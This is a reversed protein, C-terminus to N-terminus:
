FLRFPCQSRPFYWVKENEERCKEELSIAELWEWLFDEYSHNEGRRNLVNKNQPCIMKMALNACYIVLNGRCHVNSIQEDSVQHQAECKEM